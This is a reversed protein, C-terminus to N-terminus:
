AHDSKAAVEFRYIQCTVADEKIREMNAEVFRRIGNVIREAGEEHFELRIDRSSAISCSIAIMIIMYWTATLFYKIPQVVQRPAACAM